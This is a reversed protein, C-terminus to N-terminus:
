GIVALLEVGVRVFVEKMFWWQCLKLVPDCCIFWHDSCASADLLLEVLLAERRYILGKFVGIWQSRFPNPRMTVVNNTDQDWQSPRPLLSIANRCVQDCQVNSQQTTANQPQLLIAKLHIQSCWSQTMPMTFLNSHVQNCPLSPRETIANCDCQDCQSWMPPMMIKNRHVQNCQSQM